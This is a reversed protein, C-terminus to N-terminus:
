RLEVDVQCGNTPDVETWPGPTGGPYSPHYVWTRVRWAFRGQPIDPGDEVEVVLDEGFGLCPNVIEFKGEADTRAQIRVHDLVFAHDWQGYDGGSEGSNRLLVLPREDVGASTTLRIWLPQDTLQRGEADEGGVEIFHTGSPLDLERTRFIEDRCWSVEEVVVQGPEALAFEIMSAPRQAFHFELDLLILAEAVPEQNSDLVTGSITLPESTPEVPDDDCAALFLPMSITMIVALFRALHFHSSV